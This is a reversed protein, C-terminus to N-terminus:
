SGANEGEKESKREGYVAKSAITKLTCIGIDPTSFANCETIDKLAKFCKEESKSIVKLMEIAENIQLSLIARESEDGNIVDFRMSAELRKIIDEKM